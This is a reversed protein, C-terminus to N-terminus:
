AYLPKTVHTVSILCWAIRLHMLWVDASRKEPNVIYPYQQEPTLSVSTLLSHM